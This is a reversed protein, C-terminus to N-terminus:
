LRSMALVHNLEILNTSVSKVTRKFCLHQVKTDWDILWIRKVIQTWNLLSVSQRVDLAHWDQRWFRVICELFSPGAFLGRKFTWKCTHLICFQLILEIARELVIQVFRAICRRGTRRVSSKTMQCSFFEFQFLLQFTVRWHLELAPSRMPTVRLGGHVFRSNLELYSTTFHDLWCLEDM